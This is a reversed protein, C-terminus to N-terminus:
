TLTLHGRRLETTDGGGQVVDLLAPPEEAAERVAEDIQGLFDRHSAVARQVHRAGLQQRAAQLVAAAQVIEVTAISTLERGFPGMEVGQAILESLLRERPVRRELVGDDSALLWCGADQRQWLLELRGGLRTEVVLYVREENSYEYIFDLLQQM